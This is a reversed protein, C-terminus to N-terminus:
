HGRFLGVIWGILGGGVTAVAAAGRIRGDQESQKKEVDTLREHLTTHERAKAERMERLTDTIESTHSELNQKIEALSSRIAITQEELRALREGDEQRRLAFEKRPAM